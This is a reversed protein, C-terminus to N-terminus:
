PRHPPTPHHNPWLIKTVLRSALNRKGKKPSQAKSQSKAEPKDIDQYIGLRTDWKITDTNWIGGDAKVWSQIQSCFNNGWKLKWTVSVCKSPRTIDATVKILTFKHFTFKSALSRWQLTICIDLLVNVRNPGRGKQSMLSWTLWLWTLCELNSTGPISKKFMKLTWFPQIAMTVSM